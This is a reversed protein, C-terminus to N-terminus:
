ESLGAESWFHDFDEDVGWGPNQGLGRVRGLHAILTSQQSALLGVLHPV